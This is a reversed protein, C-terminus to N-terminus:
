EVIMKWLAGLSEKRKVSADQRRNFHKVHEFNNAKPSLKIGWLAETNNPLMSYRMDVIVHRDQHDVSLYHNSFWAFREIDKAQQSSLDLWPFDRKINLKAVSEGQIIKTTGAIRVADVYFRNNSEYIVKWLILNGLSPKVTLRNIVHGRVIALAKGAEVARYHQLVGLLLYSLGFVGAAKAVRPQRGVHAAVVLALLIITFVPDIISVCNWAVRVTSFPWFLQTGYSTCADLLAHTAYGATCYFVTQKFNIYKKAFLQYFLCAAILGGIPIFILSHTFQRHYELSLIPDTSSQILVDLDALLASLFALVGAVRLQNRTSVNQGVVAGVVAQSLPDM